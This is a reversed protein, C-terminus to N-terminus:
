INPEGGEVRSRTVLESRWLRILLSIFGCKSYVYIYVGILM